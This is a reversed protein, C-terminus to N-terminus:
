QVKKDSVQDLNIELSTNPPNARFIHQNGSHQYVIRVEYEVLPGGWHFNTDNWSVVVKSSNIFIAQPASM